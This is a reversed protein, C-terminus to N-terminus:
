IITKQIRQQKHKQQVMEPDDAKALSKQVTTIDLNVISSFIEMKMQTIMQSFILNTRNIYDVVNEQQKYASFAVEKRTKNLVQLHHQWFHDIM